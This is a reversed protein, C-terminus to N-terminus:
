QCSQSTLQDQYFHVSDISCQNRFLQEEGESNMLTPSLNVRNSYDFSRLQIDRDGANYKHEKESPEPHKLIGTKVRLHGFNKGSLRCKEMRYCEM